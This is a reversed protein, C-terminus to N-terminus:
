HGNTPKQLCLTFNHLTKQKKNSIAAATMSTPRKLIKTDELKMECHRRHSCICLLFMNCKFPNVCHFISNTECLIFDLLVPYFAIQEM